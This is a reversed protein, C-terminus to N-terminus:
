NKQLCWKCRYIINGQWNDSSLFIREPLTRICFYRTLERGNQIAEIVPQRGIILSSKKLTFTILNIKEILFNLKLIAAVSIADKIEEKM